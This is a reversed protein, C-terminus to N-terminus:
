AGLLDDVECVTALALMAAPAHLVQVPQGAAKSEAQVAIVCSLGASDSHRVGALDLRAIAAGAMAARMARLAAAATDFSLVGSVGLTGPTDTRLAFSAAAGSM